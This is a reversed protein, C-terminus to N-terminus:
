AAAAVSTARRESGILLAIACAAIGAIQAIPHMVVAIFLTWALAILVLDRITAALPSGVPNTLRDRRGACPAAPRRTGYRVQIPVNAPGSHM